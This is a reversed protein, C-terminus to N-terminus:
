QGDPEPEVDFLAGLQHMAGFWGVVFGLEVLEDMTYHELMRDRFETDFADPFRFRDVFMLALKQREPLDSM